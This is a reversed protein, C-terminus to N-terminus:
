CDDWPRSMGSMPHCVIFICRSCSAYAFRWVSAVWENNQTHTSFCLIFSLLFFFIRFLILSYSVSIFVISGLLVFLRRPAKEVLYALILYERWWFFLTTWFLSSHMTVTIAPISSIKNPKRISRLQELLNRKAGVRPELRRSNNIASGADVSFTM